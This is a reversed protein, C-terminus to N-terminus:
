MLVVVIMVCMCKCCYSICCYKNIYKNYEKIILNIIQQLFITSYTSHQVKKDFRQLLLRQKSKAKQCNKAVFVLVLGDFIEGWCKTEIFNLLILYKKQTQIPQRTDFTSNDFEIRNMQLSVLVSCIQCRISLSFIKNMYFLILLLPPPPTYIYPTASFNILFAVSCPIIRCNMNM